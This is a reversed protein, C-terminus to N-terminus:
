GHGARAADFRRLYDSGVGMMFGIVFWICLFLPSRMDIFQLCLVALMGGLASGMLVSSRAFLRPPRPKPHHISILALLESELQPVQPHNLEKLLAHAEMYRGARILHRVTQIRRMNQDM